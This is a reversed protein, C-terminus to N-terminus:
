GGRRRDVNPQADAQRIWQAVKQVCGPLDDRVQYVWFRIVDWGMEIMRLNRLQDRRILEGDWDRHYLQGDVEIDLRRGNPRILALDLQYRDVDYQPIARIGAQVLAKYFIKEWESVREPHAVAPYDSGSYDDPTHSATAGAESAQDSVYRAFASLFTVGSTLCAM